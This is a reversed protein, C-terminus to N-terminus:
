AMLGKLLMTMCASYYAFAMQEAVTPSFGAAECEARYAAAADMFPRVIAGIKEAAATMELHTDIEDM